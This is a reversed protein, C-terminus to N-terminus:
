LANWVLDDLEVLSGLVQDAIVFRADPREPVCICRMRAAKAALVGPLSDELAVCTEPLCALAEATALYVAPHPKGFREGQASRVVEFTGVLGLKELVADIISRASSSALALRAGKRRVFDLAHAVGPKAQASSRLLETVRIVLSQEVEERTPGSWPFRQHWYAVVADSRLGTTQHCLELTLPVGLSTFVEVEAARWWPESDVLLGDMDFIAAHIM